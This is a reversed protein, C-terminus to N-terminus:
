SHFTDDNGCNRDKDLVVGACYKNSLCSERDGPNSGLLLASMIQPDLQPLTINHGYEWLWQFMALWNDPRDFM